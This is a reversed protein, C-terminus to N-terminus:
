LQIKGNAWAIVASLLAALAGFPWKDIIWAWASMQGEQRLRVRELEIVRSDIGALDARLAEMGRVMDQRLGDLGKEFQRTLDSKLALHRKESAIEGANILQALNNTGHRFEHVYADVRGIAASIEDLKGLNGAGRPPSM